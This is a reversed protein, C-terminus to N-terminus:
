EKKIHEWWLERRSRTVIIHRAGLNMHREVISRAEEHTLNDRMIHASKDQYVLWLTFYEDLKTLSKSTEGSM